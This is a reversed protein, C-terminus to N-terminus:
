IPRVSPLIDGYRRIGTSRSYSRVIPQPLHLLTLQVDPHRRKRLEELALLRVLRGAHKRTEICGSFAKYADGIGLQVGLDQLEPLLESILGGSVPKLAHSLESTLSSGIHLKKVSSFPLLLERWLIVDLATEWGSPIGDEDLDLTLEEVASLIQGL